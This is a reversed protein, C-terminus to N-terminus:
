QKTAKKEFANSAQNIKNGIADFSNNMKDLTSQIQPQVTVDGSKEKTRLDILTKYDEDAIKKYNKLGESVAAKLGADDISEMKDVTEISKSLHESWSKRVNEAKSYDQSSMAGNMANMDKENENMVTMLKNNYEVPDPASGCSAVNMSIFAAGFIALISNVKKM